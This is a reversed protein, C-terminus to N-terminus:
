RPAAKKTEGSVPLVVERQIEMRLAPNHSAKEMQELGIRQQGARGVRRIRPFLKICRRVFPRMHLPAASVREFATALYWAVFVQLEVPQGKAVRHFDRCAVYLVIDTDRTSFGKLVATPDRDAHKLFGAFRNAFEALEKLPKGTLEAAEALMTRTGTREGITTLIERASAALLYVSAPHDGRFHARVATILHAEAVDIKTLKARRHSPPQRKSPPHGAPMTM